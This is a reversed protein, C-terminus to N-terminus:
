SGASVVSALHPSENAVLPSKEQGGTPVRVHGRVPPGTKQMLYTGGRTTLPPSLRNAFFLAREQEGFAQADPCVDNGSGPNSGVFLLPASELDGSWPEPHQFV